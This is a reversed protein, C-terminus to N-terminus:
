DTGLITPVICQFQISQTSFRGNFQGTKCKGHLRVYTDCPLYQVLHVFRQIYSQISSSLEIIANSM